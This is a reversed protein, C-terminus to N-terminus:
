FKYIGRPEQEDAGGNIKVTVTLRGDLGWTPILHAPNNDSYGRKVEIEALFVPENEIQQIIKQLEDIVQQKTAQEM